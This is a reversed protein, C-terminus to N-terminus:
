TKGNVVEMQKYNNLIKQNINLLTKQDNISAVLTDYQNIANIFDNSFIVRQEINTNIKMKQYIGKIKNINKKKKSIGLYVKYKNQERIYLFESLSKTDKTMAELDQYENYKLFYAKTSIAFVSDIKKNYESFMLNSFIYGLIIASLVLVVKNKNMYDGVRTYILSQYYITM